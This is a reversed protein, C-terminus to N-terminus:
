DCSETGGAGAKIQVVGSMIDGEDSLMNKFEIAELLNETKYFQTEFEEETLLGEKLFDNALTLEEANATIENFDEVWKKKSRISKLLIEAQKSNDWFGPALSQEEENTIEIIKRDLDFIDGYPGWEKM